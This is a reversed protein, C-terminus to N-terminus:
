ETIIKEAKLKERVIRSVEKPVSRANKKAFDKLPKRIDKEIRVQMSKPNGWNPAFYLLIDSLDLGERYM